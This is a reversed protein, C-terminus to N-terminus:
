GELIDFINFDFSKEKVEPKCTTPSMKKLHIEGYGRTVRHVPIVQQERYFLTKKGEKYNLIFSGIIPTTTYNTPIRALYAIEMVEKREPPAEIEIWLERVAQKITRTSDAMGKLLTFSPCSRLSLYRVDNLGIHYLAIM